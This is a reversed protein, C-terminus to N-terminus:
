RPQATHSLCCRFPLLFPEGRQEVMHRQMQKSVAKVRQLPLSRGSHIAHCPLLVFGPQFTAKTIKM